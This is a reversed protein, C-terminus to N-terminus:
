ITMGQQQFSASVLRALQENSLETYQEDGNLDSTRDVFLLHIIPEANDGASQKCGDSDAAEVDIRQAHDDFLTTSNDSRAGDTVEGDTLQQKRRKAAFSRRQGKRKPKASSFCACDTVDDSASGIESSPINYSFHEEVQSLMAALQRLADADHCLYSSRRISSLKGRCITALEKVSLRQDDYAGVDVTHMELQCTPPSSSTPNRTSSPRHAATSQGVIVNLQTDVNGAAAAARRMSVINQDCDVASM